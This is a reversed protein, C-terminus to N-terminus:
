VWLLIHMCGRGVWGSSPSSEDFPFHEAVKPCVGITCCKFGELFFVSVIFTVVLPYLTFCNSFDVLLMEKESLGPASCCCVRPFLVPGVNQVVYVGYKGGQQM